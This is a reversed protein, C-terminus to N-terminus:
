EPRSQAFAICTEIVTDLVAILRAARESDYAPPWNADDCVAPEELYGRQALEMQIAHVGIEPRGYHRTTWGGVFRGNAVLSFPSAQCAAGVAATLAAACTAGRNSGINFQPLVGDFLRPIRSRISHADYLVVKSHLQKLRVIQETIAAHYPQFYLERREAIDAKDPEFGPQYLPEGDFTTLPCLGTTAQGPYLSAGSPDRNVDIVTRSISTRILTAGLDKAKAYLQDVYWDADKRALWLSDMRAAIEVPIETGTHPMSIILPAEGRQIDLWNM